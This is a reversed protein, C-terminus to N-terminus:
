LIKALRKLALHVSKPKPLSGVGRPLLFYEVFFQLKKKKWLHFHLTLFPVKEESLLDCQKELEAAVVIVEKEIFVKNWWGMKLGTMRVMVKIFILWIVKLM